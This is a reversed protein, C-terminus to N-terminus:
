VDKICDDVLRNFYVFGPDIFNGQDLDFNMTTALVDQAKVTGGATLLHKFRVAFGSTDQSYQQALALVLLLSM